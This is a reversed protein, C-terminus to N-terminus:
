DQEFAKGLSAPPTAQLAQALPRRWSLPLPALLRDIWDGGTLALVLIM